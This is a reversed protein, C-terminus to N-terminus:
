GQDDRGNQESKPTFIVSEMLYEPCYVSKKAALDFKKNKFQASEYYLTTDKIKFVHISYVM